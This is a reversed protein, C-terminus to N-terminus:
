TDKVALKDKNELMFAEIDPTAKCLRAMQSAYLTVPWRGLGYVSVAGKESVKLTIKGAAKTTKLSANAAELEQIRAMAQELTTM